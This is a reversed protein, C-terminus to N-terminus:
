PIIDSRLAARDAHERTFNADPAPAIVQTDPAAVRSSLSRTANLPVVPAIAGRAIINPLPVDHDLKLNSPAVITQSRNDPERPVSLIPQKAFAPEGKQQKPAAAAGTDLPPLYENPSYTIVQSRDFQAPGLIKEQRLWALSMGWILGVATAHLVASQLFRGWPLPQQVFVDKWFGLDDGAVVPVASLRAGAGGGAAQGSSEESAPDDEFPFEIQKKAPVGM